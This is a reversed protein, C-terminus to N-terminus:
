DIDLFTFNDTYEKITANVTSLNLKNKKSIQAKSLAIDLVDISKDPQKRFRIEQDVKIVLYNIIEDSVLVNHHEEYYSKIGKLISKTQEIDPEVVYIPYFRRELASDQMFIKKYEFTTTAGILSIEGRALYPKLINGADIGGEGGGAGLVTHIEDIFIIYEQNLISIEDLIEILREEFDGRYRTGSLIEAINLQIIIKNNLFMSSKKMRIKQALGEVIATKGVGAEGILVANSKNRKSVIEELMGLEFERGILPTHNLLNMNVSYNLLNGIADKGGIEHEQGQINIGIEIFIEKCTSSMLIAAQLIHDASIENQENAIKSVYHGFEEMCPLEKNINLQEEQFKYLVLDWKQFNNEFQTKQRIIEYLLIYATLKNEKTKVQSIGIKRFTRMLEDDFYMGM